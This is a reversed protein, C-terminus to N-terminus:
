SPSALVGLLSMVERQRRLAGTAAINICFDKCSRLISDYEVEWPKLYKLGHLIRLM